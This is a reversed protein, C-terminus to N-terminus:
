RNLFECEAGLRNLRARLSALISDLRQSVRSESCGLTRGIEKMTLQEYYYLVLILRDRRTFGKTVWQRLDAREAKTLPTPLRRDEFGSMADGDGMARDHGSTTPSSNFSVMSSPRGAALMKRFTKESLKTLARREDSNPERQQKKCFKTIAAQAILRRLEETDPGRGHIKHFREIESQVLKGRTQELRPKWNIKRLYDRMAGAIRQSSFTEFRVHREIDFREIVETLGEYAEDILDEIDVQKPLQAHLRKAIKRVHGSMYHIILFNRLSPSHTQKYERWVQNIVHDQDELAQTADPTRGPGAAGNFPSHQTQTKESHSFRSEIQNTQEAGGRQSKFSRVPLELAGGRM